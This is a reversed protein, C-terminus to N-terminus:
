PLILGQLGETIVLEPLFLPLCFHEHHLHFRPHYGYCSGPVQTWLGLLLCRCLSSLSNITIKINVVNTISKYSLYGSKFNLMCISKINLSTPTKTTENAVNHKLYIELEANETYGLRPLECSSWMKEDFNYLHSTWITSTSSVVNNPTLLTYCATTQERHAKPQHLYAHLGAAQRKQREMWPLPFCNRQSPDPRRSTKRHWCVRPLLWGFLTGSLLLPSKTLQRQRFTILSAEAQAALVAWHRASRCLLLHLQQSSSRLKYYHWLSGSKSSTLSSLYIQLTSKSIWNLATLPIAYVRAHTASPYGPGQLM